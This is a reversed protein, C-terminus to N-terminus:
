EKTSVKKSRIFVPKTESDYRIAIVSDGDATAHRQATVKDLYVYGSASKSYRSRNRAKMVGDRDLILYYEFTM